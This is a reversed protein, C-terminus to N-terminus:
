NDLIKSVSLAATGALWAPPFLSFLLAARGGVELGRQWRIIKHIYAADAEGLSGVVEARLADLEAGLADIQEDTLHAAASPTLTPVKGAMTSPLPNIPKEAVQPDVPRDLTATM